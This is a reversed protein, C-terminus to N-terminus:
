AAVGCFRKYSALLPAVEDDAVTIGCDDLAQTMATIEDASIPADGTSDYGALWLLRDSGIVDHPM